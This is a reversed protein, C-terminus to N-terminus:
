KNKYGYDFIQIINGNNDTIYRLRGFNDYRYYESAGRSDTKSTIGYLPSYTYTTVLGPYTQRIKEIVAFRPTPSIAFKNFDGVIKELDYIKAGKIEAIIHQGNYGWLYVTTEQRDETISILRGSRDYEYEKRLEMSGRSSKYYKQPRYANGYKNYDYKEHLITQTINNSEITEKYEIIPSIVFDTVMNSLATYDTPYTYEKIITNDINTEKRIKTLLKFKNYTYTETTRLPTTSNQEYIEETKTSLCPIDVYIKYLAAEIFTFDSTSTTQANTNMARVYKSTDLPNYQYNEKRKLVFNSDYSAKEILLGREQERSNYKAYETQESVFLLEAPEDFTPTDFNTYKYNNISGNPFVETIESYGIHNGGSNNGGTFVSAPTCFITVSKEVDPDEFSKTRYNHRYYQPLGGLIGSSTTSKGKTNIYNTTYFYERTTIEDAPNGTPSNIIRKIRLGGVLRNDSTTLGNRKSNLIKGCRHPEFEFRTYGGTPDTIKTLVGCQMSDANPERSTFYKDPISSIDSKKGNYYGWHDVERSLFPPISDRNHYEFLFTKDAIKIKDIFKRRHTETNYTLSINLATNGEMDNVTIGDLNRTQLNEKVATNFNDANGFQSDNDTVGSYIYYFMTHKIDVDLSHRYYFSSYELQPKNSSTFNITGSPFTIKKLFVPSILQGDVCDNIPIIQFFDNNGITTSYLFTTYWLQNTLKHREYSLNVKNGGPYKIQTLHWGSSTWSGYNQNFFPVSLEVANFDDGFTYEIGQSDLLIFGTIVNPQLKGSAQDLYGSLNLLVEGILVKKIKLPETSKVQWNNQHDLYFSGSYGLFNFDFQDPETDYKPQMSKIKSLYNNLFNVTNWAENNLDQSHYQYGLNYKSNPFILVLEDPQGNQIRSISGGAMLNWGVGTWGPRQEPRIGAPHYSLKIPFKHNEISFEYLPIEISPIGTFYSVPIEGFQGLTAANPSKIAIDISPLQGAVPSALTQLMIIFITQTLKKLM